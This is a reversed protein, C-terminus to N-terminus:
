LCLKCKGAVLRESTWFPTKYEPVVMKLWKGAYMLDKELSIVVIWIYVLSNIDLVIM